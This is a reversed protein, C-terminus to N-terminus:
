KSLLELNMGGQTRSYTQTAGLFRVRLSFERNEKRFRSGGWGWGSLALVGVTVLDLFGSTMKSEERGM